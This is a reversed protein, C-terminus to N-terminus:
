AWNSTCIWTAMGWFERREGTRSPEHYYYSGRAHANILREGPAYM